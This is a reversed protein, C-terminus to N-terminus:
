LCVGRVNSTLWKLVKPHVISEKKPQVKNNRKKM